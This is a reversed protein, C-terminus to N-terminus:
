VHLALLSPLLVPTSTSLCMAGREVIRSPIVPCKFVSELRKRGGKPPLEPLLLSLSISMEPSLYTESLMGSLQLSLSPSFHAEGVRTSEKGAISGEQLSTFLFHLSSVSEKGAIYSFSYTLIVV